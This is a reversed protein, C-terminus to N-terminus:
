RTAPQLSLRHQVSGPLFPLRKGDAWASFGARYYPSLPHGSQGGPIHLYGEAEHGPSVSFRESAGFAGDQVRPMDHDGPLELTPMDFFRALYPLAGSLPHRIRVVHRAGWSCRALEGCRATLETITADIEGLLLERWSGYQAALKDPPRSSVLEWLAQEFRESPPADENIGLGRILMRWVTRETQDRYERVLRYGVSDISARANWDVVWGKFASRSPQDRLAEADLLEVILARWRALFLARDDLQVRLMDEPTAPAQLAALDAAIQHARAGLDYGAGLLAEDGGLLAEFRADDIPRANATWLRGSPPDSLHPHELASTWPGAGSLRAPGAALPIRGFITWAIHGQRDGVILNQHPIGISPALGLVEDVSTATEMNQLNFNTAEPVTALWRAFWCRHAEPEEVFLLGMSASSRVALRVSAQGHIRIEERALTLPISGSATRLATDSVALCEVPLLDLWKGYSNTFGWAVQGNSGAVLLPTGPLTLGNLDLGAATPGPATRLRMRYWVAPVRLSLHMDSTVLAAGTTTLRGALAWNNSGAEAAHAAPAPSSATLGPTLPRDSEVGNFGQAAPASGTASANPSDWITRRPYLFDLACKWGLACDAGGLEANIKRKLMEREFEGHQLDWWMAYSVLVTDQERWPVPAASLLWYEWPRSRLSALGANVGQTYAVVLARQAPTAAGLVSDAVHRFRFLRAKKDQELAVTGFLESLEGAALRRSLDMQFFRDQGHVFGTGFALDVRNAAQVTAIGLADREVSVAAGLTAASITGDLSPLSARLVGYAIAGPLVILLVGGLAIFKVSRRRM